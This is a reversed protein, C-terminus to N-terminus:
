FSLCHLSRTFNLAFILFSVCSNFIAQFAIVAVMNFGYNPQNVCSLSPPTLVTIVTMVKKVCGVTPSAHLGIVICAAPVVTLGFQSVHFNIVVFYPAVTLGTQSRGQLAHCGESEFMSGSGCDASNEPGIQATARGCALFRAPRVRGSDHRVQGCSQPRSRGVPGSTM